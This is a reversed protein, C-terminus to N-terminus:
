EIVAKFISSIVEISVELVSEVMEGSKKVIHTVKNKSNIKSTPIQLNQEYEEIKNEIPENFSISSGIMVLILILLFDVVFRKMNM